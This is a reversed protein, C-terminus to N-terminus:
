EEWTPAFAAFLADADMTPDPEVFDRVNDTDMALMPEDLGYTSITPFSAALGFGFAYTPAPSWFDNSVPASGVLVPASCIINLPRVPMIDFDELSYEGSTGSVVTPSLSGDELSLEDEEDRENDSSSYKTAAFRRKVTNIHIDKNPNRMISHRQLRVQELESEIRARDQPGAEDLALKLGNIVKELCKLKRHPWRTIGNKRCIKKLLTTCVEFKRAVDHIPQDFHSRLEEFDINKKRPM